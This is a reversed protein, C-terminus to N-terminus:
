LMNIPLGSIHECVEKIGEALTPHAHILNIIEYITFENKIALAGEHILESANKGVIQMGLIQKYNEETVIKIIGTYEGMTLSRGSFRNQFIAVKVKDYQAEAEQENIGVWAIEPNTYICGPVVKTDQEMFNGMINNAAIIGQDSAFHALQITGTVDGIAYIHDISTKMCSDVRIGKATMELNLADLGNINATRGVAVLVNTCEVQSDLETGHYLVKLGKDQKEIKEVKSNLILKINKSKLDKLVIEAVDRDLMPLLTPMMEIITVESGFSNYIYAFELGIVGSGIIVISEPIGKLELADDSTMVGEIEVGLIKPVFTKSGTAIIFHDATYRTGADITHDDIFKAKENIVDINHAKMLYGVGNVLTNVTSIKKNRLKEVDLQYQSLVGFEKAKKIDDIVSSAHALVKTPICGRNLCTGGLKKEEVIAVKAGLESARIAATYGGPGGGIVIIDYHM